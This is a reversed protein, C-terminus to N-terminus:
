RLDGGKCFRRFYAVVEALEESNCDKVPPCKPSIDTFDIKKTQIKQRQIKMM